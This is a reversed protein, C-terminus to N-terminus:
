HKTFAEATGAAFVESARKHTEHNGKLEFLGIWGNRITQDIIKRQHEADGQEMLWTKLRDISRPKLKRMREEKRYELYEDFAEQNFEDMM